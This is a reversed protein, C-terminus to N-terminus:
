TKFYNFIRLLEEKKWSDPNTRRRHFQSESIKAITCIQDVRAGTAKIFQPMANLLSFYQSVIVAPDNELIKKLKTINENNNM